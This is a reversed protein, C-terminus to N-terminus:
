AGLMKKAEDLFKTTSPSRALAQGISLIEYYVADKGAVQVPAAFVRDLAEFAPRTRPDKREFDLHAGGLKNAVYQIIQQRTVRVLPVTGVNPENHLQGVLICVSQLFQSLRYERPSPNGAKFRAGVEEPTMAYNTRYVPQVTIGQYEAGGAQAYTLRESPMGRLYNDLDIGRLLPQSPFGIARWSILYDAHGEGILLRRIVPSTRRLSADDISQDWATRLWALDDADTQIRQRDEPTM